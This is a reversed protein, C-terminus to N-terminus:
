AALRRADTVSGKFAPRRVPLTRDITQAEHRAEQSGEHQHELVSGIQGTKRFTQGPLVALLDFVAHKFPFRSFKEVYRPDTFEISAQSVDYGRAQLVEIVVDAVRKAQQTHSYYVLLVRPSKEM